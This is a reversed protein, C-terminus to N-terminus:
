FAISFHKGIDWNFSFNKILQSIKIAAQEQCLDFFFYCNLMWSWSIKWCLFSSTKSCNQTFKILEANNVGMEFLNNSSVWVLFVRAVILSFFAWSSPLNTSTVEKAFDSFIIPENISLSHFTSYRALNKFKRVRYIESSDDRLEVSFLTKSFNNEQKQSNTLNVSFEIFFQLFNNNQNYVVNLIVVM